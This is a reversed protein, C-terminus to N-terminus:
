LTVNNLHLRHSDLISDIEIVDGYVCALMGFLVDHFQFYPFKYYERNIIDKLVEAKYVTQYGSPWTKLLKKIPYPNNVNQVVPSNIINENEDIMRSKCFVMSVNETNILPLMTEIKQTDWIDDQDSFFVIGQDVLKSLNIFTQYHGNNSTNQFVVWSDLSHHEIYSLVSEFTNDTSCDDLIIVRDAQISQGRISDLQKKIFQSGNYTAMLVTIM